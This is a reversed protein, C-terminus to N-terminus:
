RWAPTKRGAPMPPQPRSTALERRLREFLDMQRMVQQAFAENDVQNEPMPVVDSGEDGVVSALDDCM